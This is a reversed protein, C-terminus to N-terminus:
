RCCKHVGKRDFFRWAVSILVKANHGACLAQSGHSPGRDKKVEATLPMVSRATRWKVDYGHERMTKIVTPASADVGPTDAIIDGWHVEYENDAEKCLRKRTANLRRCDGKSVSKKVGRTEPKGAKHTKSKLFRRVTTIDPGEEGRRERSALLKEFIAVPKMRNGAKKYFKMSAAQVVIHPIAARVGVSAVDM